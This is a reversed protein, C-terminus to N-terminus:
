ATKDIRRVALRRMKKKKMAEQMETEIKMSSESKYYYQSDSGKYLYFKNGQMEKIGLFEVTDPENLAGLSYAEKYAHELEEEATM